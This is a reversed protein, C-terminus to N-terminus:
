PVARIVFPLGDQLIEGDPFVLDLSLQLIPVSLELAQLSTAGYIRRERAHAGRWGSVCTWCGPMEPEVSPTRIFLTLPTRRGAEVVEVAFTIEPASM